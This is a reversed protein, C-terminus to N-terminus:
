NLWSITVVGKVREARTPDKVTKDVLEAMDQRGRQWYADSDGGRMGRPHSTCGVLVLMGATALAVWRRNV